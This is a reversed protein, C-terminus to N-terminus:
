PHDAIRKKKKKKKLQHPMYSSVQTPQLLDDIAKPMGLTDALEASTKQGREAPQNEKEPHKLVQQQANTKVRMQETPSCRELLGKASYGKGLDSGNFVCKTRHDVYTIGYVVGERNQRIATYIGNAALTKTLRQLTPRPNKLLAMGIANTIATKHPQRAAENAAFRRELAKLTPKSYISSAKIPVGIKIGKEDLIRYTLGGSRYIRSDKEGRDALINYQILVANLEPLSTYKYTNLVADLVNTIARKTEMKGYVAKQVDVPKLEYRQHQKSNEARVLGFALELEKRAKESENKGLNHLPIRTGDRRINTTVIHIHPHGADQHAYVLYPQGAFGIKEMYAGAIQRLKEDALKESPDFNLSIHVSNVKTRVNLQAQNQLRALKQPFSLQEADKPYNGAALCRAKGQSVKQENYALATRLSRSTHIVAVM